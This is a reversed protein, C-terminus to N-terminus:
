SSHVHVPSSLGVERFFQLSFICLQNEPLCYIIISTYLYDTLMGFMSAQILIVTYNAVCHMCHAGITQIVVGVYNHTCYLSKTSSLCIYKNKLVTM